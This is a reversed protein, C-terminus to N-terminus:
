FILKFGLVPLRPLQYTAKVESYDSNYNYDFVNNRNLLNIVELYIEAPNGWIRLQRELRLDIRSYAPFRSSNVAGELPLPIINGTSDPLYIV